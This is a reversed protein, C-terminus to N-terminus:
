VEPVVPKGLPTMSVWRLRTVFQSLESSRMPSRRPLAVSHMRGINWLKAHVAITSVESRRVIFHTIEADIAGALGHSFAM